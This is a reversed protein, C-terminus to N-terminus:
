SAEREQIRRVIGNLVGWYEDPGAAGLYDLDEDSIETLVAAPLVWPLEVFTKLREEVLHTDPIL